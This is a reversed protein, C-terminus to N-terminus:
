EEAEYQRLDYAAQGTAKDYWAKGTFAAFSALAAIFFARFVIYIIRQRRKKRARAEYFEDSATVVIWDYDVNYPPRHNDTM